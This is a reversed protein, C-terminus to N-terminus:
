QPPERRAGRVRNRGERKAEYQATDAENLLQWGDEVDNVVRSAVGISVTVQLPVVPAPIAIRQEAVRVRMAEAIDMAAAADHEPLLCTFEEGGLRVLLGARPVCQVLAQAVARLVADGGAHGHRDNLAKFHDIDVFVFALRTGAPVRELAQQLSRRNALGTLADHTSLHRLRANAAQLEATREAVSHELARRRAQLARNRTRAGAYGALVLLLAALAYSWRGQWWHAAVQLPIELPLAANGAYDRAEVRLVHRGPPLSGYNRTASATWPGPGDDVGLLTTRFRSAEGRKWSLLAFQVMVSHADAPVRLPPGAVDKGDVQLALLRLPKPERDVQVGTPDYVTLGGLTGTWFRGHADLAQANVNCEANIMGDGRNFVTSAYSGDAQPTLLQVGNNTCVFVRGDDAVLPGYATASPAAPLPTTVVQPVRPDSVDVRLVGRDASGLWLLTRGDHGRALDMGLIRDSALGHARDLVSWQGHGLRLLGRTSAVWLWPYGDADPQLLLRYTRWPGELDPPRQAQWDRGDRLRWLGSLRTAVWLDWHGDEARELVDEVAEATNKPWPTAIREFRPGEHVRVLEGGWTGLWRTAPAGTRAPLRRLMSIRDGPLASDAHTFHRWRGHEYLGLGEGSSGVWIREGGDVDHEVLVGFSGLSSAGLRSVNFWASDGLTTQSVGDQTGLWLVEHGGPSRWASLSRVVNSALHHRADFQRVQDHHVRLLGSRSAVWVLADGADGAPAATGVLRYLNNSGLEGSEVSWRRVGSADVRVLGVGFAVFWLAEREGQGTVLLENVQVRGITDAEFAHWGGDAEDRYWLGRTLTGVWIRRAGGLSRTQALARPADEPLGDGFASRQWRGDRRELLGADRTLAWLTSRGQADHTQAFRYVANTPLGSDVDERQWRGDVYRALGAGTFAAWLTGDDALFLDDVPHRAQPDASAQWARGDFRHLSDASAAWVFGDRDTQLDVIVADPLGDRLSYNTFVPAALDALELAAPAAAAGASWLLLWWWGLRWWTTTM